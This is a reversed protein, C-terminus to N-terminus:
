WSIYNGDLTLPETEETDQARAKKVFKTQRDETAQIQTEEAAQIETEETALTDM